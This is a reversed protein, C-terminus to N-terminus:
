GSSVLKLLGTEPFASGISSSLECLVTTGVKGDESEGLKSAKEAGGLEAGRVNGSRFTWAKLVEVSAKGANGADKVSGGDFVTLSVVVREVSALVVRKGPGGSMTVLIPENL